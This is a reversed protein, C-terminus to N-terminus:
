TDHGIDDIIKMCNRSNRKWLLVDQPWLGPRAPVLLFWGWLHKISHLYRPWPQNYSVCRPNSFKKRCFTFTMTWVKPFFGWLFHPFGFSNLSEILSKRGAWLNGSIKGRLTNRVFFFYLKATYFITDYRPETKLNPYGLPLPLPGVTPHWDYWWLGLLRWTGGNPPIPIMGMHPSTNSYTPPFSSNWAIKEHCMMVTHTVHWISDHASLNKTYCKNDTVQFM